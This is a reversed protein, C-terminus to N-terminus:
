KSIYLLFLCSRDSASLLSILFPLLAAPVRLLFAASLLVFVATLADLWLDADATDPLLLTVDLFPFSDLTFFAAEEM